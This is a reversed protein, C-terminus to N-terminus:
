LPSHKAAIERPAGSGAETELRAKRDLTERTEPTALTEQAGPTARIELREEHAPTVPTAKIEKTGKFARHGRRGLSPLPRALM